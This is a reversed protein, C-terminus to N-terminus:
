VYSQPNPFSQNLRTKFPVAKLGDALASLHQPKVPQQFLGNQILARSFDHGSVVTCVPRM